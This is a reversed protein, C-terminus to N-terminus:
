TIHSGSSVSIGYEVTKTITFGNVTIWSVSSLTFGDGSGTVTVTAGPAATYVIPATSTGSITPTVDETYTGTAVQVTTGPTTKAAAAGITCFPQTATGAGNDSCSPNSKDVYLTTSTAAISAPSLVVVLTAAVALVVRGWQGRKGALRDDGAARVVLSHGGNRDGAVSRRREGGCCRRM